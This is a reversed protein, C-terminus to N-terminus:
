SRVSGLILNSEAINIKRISISKGHFLVSIVIINSYTTGTNLLRADCGRLTAVYLINRWEKTM